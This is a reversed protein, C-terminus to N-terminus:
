QYFKTKRYYGMNQLCFKKGVKYLQDIGKAKLQEAEDSGGQNIVGEISKVSSLVLHVTEIQTAARALWALCAKFMDFPAGKNVMPTLGMNFDFLLLDTMAMISKANVVLNKAM